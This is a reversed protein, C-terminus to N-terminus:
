EKSRVEERPLRIRFVAGPPDGEDVVIAGGHGEVIQRCVTLGLGTGKAKTTYLPEFVRQRNAAPIGPGEDGVTIEDFPEDQVACVTIQGAGQMAQIANTFLNGLVQRLQPEDAHVVRPESGLEIRWRIEKPPNLRRIVYAIIEGLNVRAKNPPKGRTLALLDTIIQEATGTEAEIIDLYERWKPESAPVKRRLYFTANRVIGLPNRLEHAISASLQGITALQTKRILEGRVRELEATVRETERKQIELLKEQAARAAEEAEVRGTVDDYIAVLEGSALKYVYNERWRTRRQDSYRAIPFSEATGSRWVRQFVAFLGFEKVGPFVETVRRGIVEGRSIGEIREAAANFGKILFDRGDEIAEYVAVGSSMSEFMARYREESPRMAEEVRKEATVDRFICHTQRFRGAADHGVKGDFSVVIPSGDKRVMVFEYGHIEGIEQFRPFRQQFCEVDPKALFDGFWRGMVEERSYGLLNLWAQNVEILRGEENLSQYGLPANEYLLRFKAESETLLKEARRRETVDVIFGELARLQGDASFVGCGQEWVSKEEGEATIIRYDLRFFQRKDVATQVEDWIRQRDDPHILSAYSCRRNYNLAEATYGTLALCGESVFEMTWDRDNRCRYAMGPLNSMLTFLRRQSERLTEEFAERNM